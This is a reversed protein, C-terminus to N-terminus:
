YRSTVYQIYLKDNFTLQAKGVNPQCFMKALSESVSIFHNLRENIDTTFAKFQVAQLKRGNFLVLSKKLELEESGIGRQALKIAAEEAIRQVDPEGTTPMIFPPKLGSLLIRVVVVQGLLENSVKVMNQDVFYSSM